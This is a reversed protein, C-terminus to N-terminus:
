PVLAVETMSHAYPSLEGTAEVVNGPRLGAVFESGLACTMVTEGPAGPLALRVCDRMLGTTEVEVVEYRLTAPDNTTAMNWAQPALDFPVLLTIVGGMVPAALLLMALRRIGSIGDMGRTAPDRLASVLVIPAAFAITVAIYIHLLNQNIIGALEATQVATGYRFAAFGGLLGTVLMLIAFYDWVDRQRLQAGDILITEYRKSALRPPPADATFISRMQEKARYEVEPENPDPRPEAVRYSLGLLIFILFLFLTVGVAGLLARAIPPAVGTQRGFELIVFGSILLWALSVLIFATRPLAGETRDLTNRFSAPLLFQLAKILCFIAGTVMAALMVPDELGREYAMVALLGASALGFLGMVRASVGSMFGIMQM